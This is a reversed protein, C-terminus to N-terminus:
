LYRLKIETSSPLQDTIVVMSANYFSLYAVINMGFGTKEIKKGMQAFTDTKEM